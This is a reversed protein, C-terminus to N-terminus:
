GIDVLPHFSVSRLWYCDGRHRRQFTLGDCKKPFGKLELDPLCSTKLRRLWLIFLSISMSCSFTTVLCNTFLARNVKDWEWTRREESRGLPISCSVRSQPDSPSWRHTSEGVMDSTLDSGTREAPARIASPGRM